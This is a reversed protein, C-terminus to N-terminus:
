CAVEKALKLLTKANPVGKFTHIPVKLKPLVGGESQKGNCVALVVNGAKHKELPLYRTKLAAKRWQWVIDIYATKGTSQNRLVFDPVVAGQGDLDLLEAAEIIQWDGDVLENLRALLATEEPATWMGTDRYHSKLGLDSDLQLVGKRKRPAAQYDAVLMWQECLLLAPFFNALALGYRSSHKLVSLPGDIKFLYTGESQRQATYLLRYFKLYRMLQRLRKTNPTRITILLSRARLLAGQVLAVNYRHILAEATISDFSTLRQHAALDAYLFREIDRAPIDLIEAATDFVHQRDDRSVPHKKAALEFVTERIRSPEIPCTSDVSARKILLRALGRRVKFDRGQGTAQKLTEDLEGRTRGVHDSVMQILENARDLQKQSDAGLFRCRAQGERVDIRLLDKTLM